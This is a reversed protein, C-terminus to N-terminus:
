VFLCIPDFKNEKVLFSVEPSERFTNRTASGSIDYQILM